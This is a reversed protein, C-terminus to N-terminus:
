SNANKDILNQLEHVFIGIVHVVNAGSGVGDIPEYLSQNNEWKEILKKLGTQLEKYKKTIIRVNNYTDCIANLNIRLDEGFLEQKKDTM